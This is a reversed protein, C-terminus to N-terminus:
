TSLVSNKRMRARYYVFTALCLATAVNSAVVRPGDGIRAAAFAKEWSCAAPEGPAIEQSLRYSAELESTYFPIKGLEDSNPVLWLNRQKHEGTNTDVVMETKLRWGVIQAIEVDLRRSPEVSSRLKEIVIDIDM